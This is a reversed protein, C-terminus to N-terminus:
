GLEAAAKELRPLAEALRRALNEIAAKRAARDSLPNVISPQPDPDNAVADILVAVAGEYIALRHTLTPDPDPWPRPPLVVEPRLDLIGFKMLYQLDWFSEVFKRTVNPDNQRTFGHVLLELSVRRLLEALMM